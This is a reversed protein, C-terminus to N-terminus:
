RCSSEGRMWSSRRYCRLPFCMSHADCTRFGDALESVTQLCCAFGMTDMLLSEIEDLVTYVEETLM